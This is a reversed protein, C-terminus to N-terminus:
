VAIPADRLSACAPLRNVCAELEAVTAACDTFTWDPSDSVCAAQDNYVLFPHDIGGVNVGCTGPNGYSGAQGVMWDCLQGKEADSLDILRKSSSVGSNGGSDGCASVLFLCALAFGGVRGLKGDRM